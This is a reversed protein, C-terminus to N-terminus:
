ALAGGLINVTGVSTRLVKKSPAACELVPAVLAPRQASQLVFAAVHVVVM